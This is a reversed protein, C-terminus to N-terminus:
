RCVNGGQFAVMFAQLPQKWTSLDHELVEPMLAIKELKPEKKTQSNTSNLANKESFRAAVFSSEM